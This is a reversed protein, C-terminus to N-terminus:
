IVHPPADEAEELNPGWNIGQLWGGWDRKVLRRQFRAFPAM